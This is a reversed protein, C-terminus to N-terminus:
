EGVVAEGDELRDPPHVVVRAGARLGATVEVAGGGQHGITVERRRAKGAEVAFVCWVGGRRFLAGLPVTVVRQGSWAVVHAEVRWGDGLARWREPGDRLDILVNVRQEEVGLASVRTFASPEVLRVQGELVGVEGGAELHVRAGPVVRLADATLLDVVVELAGTDGLELLPTGATVVGGSPQQVRLVRARVPSRLTIEEGAAAGSTVRALLARANDLEYAAGRAAFQASAQEDLRNREEFEAQAVDHEPLAGSAALARVRGAESRAFEWAGRSRDVVSRAQRLAADAMRVRGEAEMRSRADLPAPDAPLIRAVVAGAEVADGPHLEPRRVNGTVTSSIVYRDRVRTRGEEDITAELRTERVAAVEVSTPKPRALWLAGALAGLVALLELARRL